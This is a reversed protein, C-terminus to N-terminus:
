NFIFPSKCVALIIYICKNMFIRINRLRLENQLRIYTTRHVCDASNIETKHCIVTATARVRLTRYVVIIIIIIHTHTHICLNYIRVIGHGHYHYIFFFIGRYVRKESMTKTSVRLTKVVAYEKTNM